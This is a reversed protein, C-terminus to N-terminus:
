YYYVGGLSPKQIAMPLLGLLTTLPRTMLIPRLWSAAERAGDGRHPGHRM